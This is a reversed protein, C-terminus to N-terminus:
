QRPLLLDCGAPMSMPDEIGNADCVRRWERPDGYANSAIAQVTDGSRVTHMREASGAGATKASVDEVLFQELKLTVTARVPTGDTLFMTYSCDFGRLIFQYEADHRSQSFEGWNFRVMSYVRDEDFSRCIADELIDIVETRVSTRTEYTDFLLNPVKLIIPDIASVRTRQRSSGANPSLTLKLGRSVEIKTPNFHLPITTVEGGVEDLNSPIILLQAKSLSM